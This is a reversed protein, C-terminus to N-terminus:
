VAFTVTDYVDDDPAVLDEDDVMEMEVPSDPTFAIKELPKSLAIWDDCGKSKSALVIKNLM